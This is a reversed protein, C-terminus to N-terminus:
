FHKGFLFAFTDSIAPVQTWVSASFDGLPQLDDSNTVVILSSTGDFAYASNAQGFRNTTSIAGMVLGDHGRGTGDNANGDFPYYAILGNTLFSQAQANMTIALLAAIFLPAKRFPKTIKM